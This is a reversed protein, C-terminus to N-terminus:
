KKMLYKGGEDERDDDDYRILGLFADSFHKDKREYLFTSAQFESGSLRFDEFETTLKLRPRCYM